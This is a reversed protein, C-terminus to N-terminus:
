QRRERPIAYVVAGAACWCHNRFLFRYGDLERMLWGATRSLGDTNHYVTAAIIPRRARLTERAGRLADLEGGELHLKIFTPEVDLSDISRLSVQAQGFASLRSAYGYGESFAGTGDEAALAYDLVASQPLGRLRERLVARNGTDPEVAIVRLSAIREAFALSVAGHHAGGDLFNERERLCAAVEPIFYRETSVPTGEFTWEERLRRWAIFQLHHARSVDDDWGALVAEIECQDAATLPPAFWGNALPHQGRLSEALDYFPVVDICGRATLSREIAVYPSTVVSVAVRASADTIPDGREFIGAPEHRVATLFECALRGLNGAGYLYLPRETPSPPALSLTTAFTSM